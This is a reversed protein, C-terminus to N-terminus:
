ELIIYMVLISWKVTHFPSLDTPNSDIKRYLYHLTSIEESEPIPFINLSFLKEEKEQQNCVIEFGIKKTQKNSKGRKQSKQIEGGGM